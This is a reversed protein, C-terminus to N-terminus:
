CLVNGDKNLFGNMSCFKAKGVALPAFKEAKLQGYSYTGLQSGDIYIQYFKRIPVKKFVVGTICTGDYAGYGAAFKKGDYDGASQKAATAKPWSLVRSTGVALTEGDSKLIVEQGAKGECIKNLGGNAVDINIPPRPQSGSIADSGFDIVGVTSGIGVMFLPITKSKAAHAPSALLASSGLVIAAAISLTQSFKM